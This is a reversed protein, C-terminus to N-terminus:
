LRHFSVAPPDLGRGGAGSGYQKVDLKFMSQKLNINLMSQEISIDILISTTYIFM